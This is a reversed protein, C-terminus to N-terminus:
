KGKSARNEQIARQFAILAERLSTSIEPHALMSDEDLKAGLLPLAISAEDVIRASMVGLTERLCAQAHVARPSANFLAIPKNVFAECGVMWDLANKIVGTVGHAYEPSAILVGDAEILRTRLDAVALPDTAEIDPNFLPLEGLRRFLDVSIGPPALRSAVRLLTTNISAARLSPIPTELKYRM